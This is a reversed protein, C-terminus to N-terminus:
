MPDSGEEDEDEEDEEMMSESISTRRHSIPWKPVLGLSYVKNSNEFLIRKAVQVAQAESLENRSVTEILVEALAQRGQLAGLYYTEPWFHGDTSWLIKSTPCLELAERVVERQGSASIFPWVEGIDLYVNAHTAALYGAERTFPYSGHLL